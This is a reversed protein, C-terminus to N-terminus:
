RCYGHELRGDSEQIRDFPVQDHFVVLDVVVNGIYVFVM